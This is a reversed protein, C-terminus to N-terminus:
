RAQRPALPRVHPGLVPQHPIADPRRIQRTRPLYTLQYSQISFTIPSVNCPCPCRGHGGVSATAKRILSFPWARESKGPSPCRMSSQSAAPQCHNSPPYAPSPYSARVQVQDAMPLQHSSFSHERGTRVVDGYKKHLKEVEVQYQLNRSLYVAYFRSLKAPWPGPFKRLRHFFARYVLTCATLSLLFGLAAIALTKAAHGTTAHYIQIDVYFISFAVAALFCLTQPVAMDLRIWQTAGHFAVGAFASALLTTSEM